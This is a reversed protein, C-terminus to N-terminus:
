WPGVLQEGHKRAELEAEVSELVDALATIERALLRAQAYTLYDDVRVFLHGDIAPKIIASM